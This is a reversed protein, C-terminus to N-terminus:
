DEWAEPPMPIVYVFVGHKDMAEFEMDAVAGNVDLFDADMYAWIGTGEGDPMDGVSFRADPWRTRVLNQLEIIIRSEASEKRAVAM